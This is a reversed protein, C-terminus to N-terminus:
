NQIKFYIGISTNLVIKIIEELAINLLTPSLADGQKIVLEKLLQSNFIVIDPIVLKNM